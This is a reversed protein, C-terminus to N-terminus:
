IFVFYPDILILKSTFKSFKKEFNGTKERM